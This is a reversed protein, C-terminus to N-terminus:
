QFRTEVESMVDRHEDILDSYDAALNDFLMSMDYIFNLLICMHESYVDKEVQKCKFMYFLIWNDLNDPSYLKVLKVFEAYPIDSVKIDYLYRNNMTSTFYRELTYRLSKIEGNNVSNHYKDLFRILEKKQSEDRHENHSM